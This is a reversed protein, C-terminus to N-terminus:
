RIQTVMNVGNKSQQELDLIILKYMQENNFVEHRISILSMVQQFSTSTDCEVGLSSLTVKMAEM